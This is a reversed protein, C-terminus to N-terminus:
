QQARGFRFTEVVKYKPEVNFQTEYLVIENVQWKIQSLSRHDFLTAVYDKEGAWKRALTIHPAFPRRDLSFGIESCMQFLEERYAHLKPQDKVGMWFVRPQLQHGFIGYTSLEIPFSTWNGLPNELKEKVQALQYHTCDGLFVLTLHLDDPHVWRKFPLKENERAERILESQVQRPVPIALFYHAKM